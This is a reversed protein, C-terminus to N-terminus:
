GCSKSAELTCVFCETMFSGSHSPNWHWVVVLMSLDSNLTVVFSGIVFGGFVGDAAPFSLSLSSLINLQGGCWPVGSRRTGARRQVKRRGSGRHNDDFCYLPSVASQFLVSAHESPLGIQNSEIGDISAPRYRRSRKRVALTVISALVGVGVFFGCAVILWCIRVCGRM